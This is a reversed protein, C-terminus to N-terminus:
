KADLKGKAKLTKRVHIRFSFTEILVCKMEAQFLYTVCDTTSCCTIKFSPYTKNSIFM